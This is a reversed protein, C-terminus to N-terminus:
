PLEAPFALSPLGTPNAHRRTQTRARLASLADTCVCAHPLLMTVLRPLYTQQERGSGGTPHQGLVSAWSSSASRERICLATASATSPSRASSVARRMADIRRSTPAGPPDPSTCEHAEQQCSQRTGCGTRDLCLVPGNRLWGLCPVPGNRLWGLCPVPGNRTHQTFLTHAIRPKTHVNPNLGSWRCTRIWMM